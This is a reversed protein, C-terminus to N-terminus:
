VVRTNQLGQLSGVLNTALEHASFNDILLLVKRGRMQNDFWQLFEECILGTMWKTKNNRYEIGLLRKNIHKFCRLNKSKGIIWPILKESGDGNATLALTIRDKSKKTGSRSETALSRDPTRKWFLGTEDM